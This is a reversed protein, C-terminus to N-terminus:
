NVMDTLLALQEAMTTAKLVESEKVKTKEQDSMYADSDISSCRESQNEGTAKVKLSPDLSKMIKRHRFKLQKTSFPFNQPNKYRGGVIKDLPDKQDPRTWL